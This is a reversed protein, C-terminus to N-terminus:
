EGQPEDITWGSESSYDINIGPVLATIVQKIASATPQDVVPLLEDLLSRADGCEIQTVAM